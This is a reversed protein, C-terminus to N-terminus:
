ASLEKTKIGLVEACDSCCDGSIIAPGQSCCFPVFTTVNREGCLDCEDSATVIRRVTGACRTCAVRRQPLLVLAPQPGGKRLHCCVDSLCALVGALLYSRVEGPADAHSRYFWEREPSSSLCCSVWGTTCAVPRM